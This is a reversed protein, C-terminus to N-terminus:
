KKLEKIMWNIFATREKRHLSHKNSNENYSTWWVYTDKQPQKIKQKKCLAIANERTLLPVIKKASDSSERYLFYFSNLIAPCIFKDYGKNLRDKAMLLIVIQEEKSVRDRAMVLPKNEAEKNM